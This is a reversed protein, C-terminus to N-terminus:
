KRLIQKTYMLTLQLILLLGLVVRNYLDNKYSGNISENLPIRPSSQNLMLCADFVNSLYGVQHFNWTGGNWTSYGIPLIPKYQFQGNIRRVMINSGGVANTFVQVVASMDRCDAWDDNLFSTLNFNPVPSHSNGGYYTKDLNNYAGETIYWAVNFETSQGSAWDCAYDLVSSWPEAMPAQPAALLTYYSHYTYSNTAASCYGYDNTIAYIEWKWTFDRIGVTGPITGDLTLTIWDLKTYNAVFYNCIEGPGTGSTVTLNIILHMDERNSDFRVQIKRNSQSKIYAFKESRVYYKWEPVTATSGDAKRITLADNNYGAEDYNFKIEDPWVTINTCFSFQIGSFYLILIIIPAKLNIGLVKRGISKYIYM